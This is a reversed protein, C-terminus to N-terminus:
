EADPYKLRYVSEHWVCLDYIIEGSTTIATISMPQPGIAPALPFMGYVPLRVHYSGYDLSDQYGQLTYVHDVDFEYKAAQSPKTLKRRRDAISRFPKLTKNDAAAAANTGDVSHGVFNEPLDVAMMDPEQGPADVSVTQAAGAYLSLMKPNASHFDLITGPAVRHFLMNLLGMFFPPPALRMPEKFLGGVHVQSMPIAKKFRGQLVTQLVRNRGAFYADHSAADNSAVNRIRVLLKGKFIPSEFEFPVGLPLPQQQPNQRADSNPTTTAANLITTDSRAVLYIPRHPWEKCPPLPPLPGTEGNSNSGNPSDEPMAEVPNVVM